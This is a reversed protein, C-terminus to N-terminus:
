SRAVPSRNDRYLPTIKGSHYIYLTMYYAVKLDQSRENLMIGKLSMWITAHVHQTSNYQIPM